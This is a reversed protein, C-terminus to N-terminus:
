RDAYREYSSDDGGGSRREVSERGRALCLEVNAICAGADLRPQPRDPEPRVVLPRRPISPLGAVGADPEFARLAERVEQPRARKELRVFVHATHGDVVPVRNTAVAVGIDAGLIKTLEGPIKEEEGEIWPLVNATAALARPGRAGAGSLAQLTVVTVTTVGWARHIPALALALMTVVCNPNAVLGGEAERWRQRAVADLSGPNVEPIVLPVDPRMRHASANTCVIRGTAALRPELEAAIRAPLASVVVRGAAAPAEALLDEAEVLTEQRISAPVRDGVVWDVVDGYARGARRPSGVLAGPRFWPHDALMRVLHQGVIGTAGLVAVPM